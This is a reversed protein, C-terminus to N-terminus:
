HVLEELSVYHHLQIKDHIDRNLESTFRAM